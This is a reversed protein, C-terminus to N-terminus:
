SGMSQGFVGRGNEGSAYFFGAYSTGSGEYTNSVWFAKGDTSTTGHYPLTLSGDTPLVRLGWALVLITLMRGTKM